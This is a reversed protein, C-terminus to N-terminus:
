ALPPSNKPALRYLATPARLVSDQVLGRLSLTSGHSPLLPGASALPASTKRALVAVCHDHEHGDVEPASELAVQPEDTRLQLGPGLLLSADDAAADEVHVLEGHEPCRAHQVLLLHAYGLIPTLLCLAALAGASYRGSATRVFRL